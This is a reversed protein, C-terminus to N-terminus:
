KGLCRLSFPLYYYDNNMPMSQEKGLDICVCVHYQRTFIKKEDTIRVRIFDYMNASIEVPEPKKMRELKKCFAIADNEYEMDTVVTIHITDERRNPIMNLAIGLHKNYEQQRLRLLEWVPRFFAIVVSCKKLSKEM